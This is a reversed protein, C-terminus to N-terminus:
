GMRMGQEKEPTSVEKNITTGAEAEGTETTTGKDTGAALTKGVEIMLDRDEGPTILDREASTERGTETGMEPGIEAIMGTDTATSDAGATEEIGPGATIETGKGAKIETVMAGTGKGPTMEQAVGAGIEREATVESAGETGITTEPTTEIVVGTGTEIGARMGLIERDVTTLDTRLDRVHGKQREAM